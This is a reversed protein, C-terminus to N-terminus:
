NNGTYAAVMADYEAIADNIKEIIYKPPSQRSLMRAGIVAAKRMRINPMMFRLMKEIQEDDWDNLWQYTYKFFEYGKIAFIMDEAVILGRRLSNEAISEIHALLGEYTDEEFGDGTLLNDISTHFFEAIVPLMSTCPYEQAAEWQEIEQVSVGLEAALLEVSIGRDERFLRLQKSITIDTM